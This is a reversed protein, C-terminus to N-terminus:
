PWAWAVVGAVDMVSVVKGLHSVAVAMTIMATM